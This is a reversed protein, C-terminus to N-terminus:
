GFLARFIAFLTALVGLFVFLVHELKPSGPQLERDESEGIEGLGFTWDRDPDESPDPDTTAAGDDDELM